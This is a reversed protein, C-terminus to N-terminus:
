AQLDNGNSDMDDLMTRVAGDIHRLLESKSISGDLRYSGESGQVEFQYRTERGQGCPDIVPTVNFTLTRTQPVIM